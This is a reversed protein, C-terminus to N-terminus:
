SLPGWAKKLRQGIVNRWHDLTYDKSITRARKGMDKMQDLNSTMDIVAKSVSSPDTKDLVIGCKNEILSPIVSVGTAITPLGCAMAEILSKPFGEKTNTPFVFLHSNSLKKIVDSHNCNGHFTISSAVGIQKALKTLGSYEDGDGVINLHVSHHKSIEPLAQIISQVNKGISLRSVTVLKLTENGDWSKAPKISKWEEDSISTSFIWKINSNSPEPNTSGGGTGMVINKGFAIRPLLWHIFKDTLTKRNGWTGCHRTFIPKKNIIAILLGVLGIDGPILAHVADSSKVENWITQFHLPLWLFFTLQRYLGHFPPEPVPKAILNKGQILSLNNPRKSKRKTCILSTTDFLQSLANIQFPFGGTTQFENKLRNIEWTEKNSIILLKM